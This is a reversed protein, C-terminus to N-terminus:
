LHDKIQIYSTGDHNGRMSGEAMSLDDQVVVLIRAGAM